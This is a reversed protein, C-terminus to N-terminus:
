WMESNELYQQKGARLPWTEAGYLVLSWIYCKLLKKRVNFDLKSTFLAKKKNFVSKAM